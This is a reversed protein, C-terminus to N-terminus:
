PGNRFTPCPHRTSLPKTARRPNAPACVAEMTLIQSAPKSQFFTRPPVIPPKQPLADRQNKM